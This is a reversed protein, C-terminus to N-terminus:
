RPTAEEPPVFGAERMDDHMRRIYALSRRGRETNEPPLLRAWLRDIPHGGYYRFWIKRAFYEAVTVVGMLAYAGWGTFARWSDSADTFVLVGMLLANVGFLGAWLLTVKGCYPRIFDPARPQLFRAAREIVPVDRLSAAFVAALFVQIAAPVLLLWRRDGTVLAGALLALCGVRLAGLFPVPFPRSADGLPITPGHGQFTLLGLALFVAAVVRAGFRAEAEQILFPYALFLAGGVALAAFLLTPPRWPALPDEEASM